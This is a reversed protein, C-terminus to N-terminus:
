INKEELKKLKKEIKEEIGKLKEEVKKLKLELKKQKAEDWESCHEKIESLEPIHVHIDKLVELGKLGEGLHELHMSKIGEGLHELHLGKMDGMIKVRGEREDIETKLVKKKNHRLVVVDIKDGKKLKKLAKHVDKISTIKSDKIKVIVDGAKIGAKSAPTDKKVKVVLAGEGEKVGFYEGLENDLKQLHVGLFAGGGFFHDGGKFKKIFVKVNEDDGDTSYIHKGKDGFVKIFKHMRKSEGLTAKVEKTKGKRSFKVSVTTGAKYDAVAAVLNGPRRIKEGNLAIIVDGKKIGAKEAASDKSVKLVMVGFDVGAEKKQEENLSDFSVGLFGKGAREGADMFFATGVLMLAMMLGMVMNRRTFFHRLQRM